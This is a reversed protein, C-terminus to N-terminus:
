GLKELKSTKPIDNWIRAGRYSFTKKLANTNPKPLSLVRNNIPVIETPFRLYILLTIIRKGKCYM